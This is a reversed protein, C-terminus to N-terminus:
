LHSLTVHSVHGRDVITARAASIRDGNGSMGVKSDDFDHRVIRVPSMKLLPERGKKNTTYVKCLFSGGASM